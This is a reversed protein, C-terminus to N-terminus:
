PALDLWTLGRKEETRIELSKQRALDCAAAHNEETHREDRSLM